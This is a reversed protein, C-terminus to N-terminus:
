SGADKGAALPPSAPTASSTPTLVVDVEVDLCADDHRGRTKKCHDRVAGSWPAHGAARVEITCTIPCWGIGDGEFQGAEDSKAESFKTSCELRVDAGVVPTGSTDRVSGVFRFAPDCGALVGFILIAAALVGRSM